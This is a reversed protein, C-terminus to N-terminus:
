VLPIFGLVWQVTPIPLSQLWDSHEKLFSRARIPNLGFVLWAM